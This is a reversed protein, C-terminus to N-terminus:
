LDEVVDRAAQARLSPDVDLEGVADVVQKDLLAEVLAEARALELARRLPQHGLRQGAPDEVPRDGLAGAHSELPLAAADPQQHPSGTCTVNATPSSARSTRKESRASTIAPRAGSHPSNIGPSPRTDRWWQM